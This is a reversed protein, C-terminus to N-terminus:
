MLGGIKINCYRCVKRSVDNTAGCDGCVVLGSETIKKAPEGEGGNDDTEDECEYEDEDECEDNDANDSKDRGFSPFELGAGGTMIDITKRVLGITFVLMLIMFLARITFELMQFTVSSTDEIGTILTIIEAIM